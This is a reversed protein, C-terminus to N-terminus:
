RIGEGNSQREVAHMSGRDSTLHILHTKEKGQNEKSSSMHQSKQRCAQMRARCAARVTGVQRSVMPLTVGPTCCKVDLKIFGHAKEGHCYNNARKRSRLSRLVVRPM